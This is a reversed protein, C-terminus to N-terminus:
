NGSRKRSWAQLLNVILLMAFSMVLMTTAIVTAGDYNFEELRIIILLPAIESVNPINGAIFIISGYEGIGRALALAFGTMLAPFLVPFIVKRFTFLRGAGLSAAAEELRHDFQELVPQVSRVVFPLGIFMMAIVVGVPSYAVRLGAMALVQGIPGNPSYITVLAIGAVATPLAFPLDILADVIKRGPFRYRVLVWAILFGFIADIVAAVFAAGFSLWLAHLTRTSRIISLFDGWEMGVSRAVIAALPVLVIVGLYSLTFGLTIGFGPIVRKRGRKRITVTM